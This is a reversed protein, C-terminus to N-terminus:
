SPPKPACAKVLEHPALPAPKRFHDVFLEHVLQTSLIGALAMDDTEGLPLGRHIKGVLQAV